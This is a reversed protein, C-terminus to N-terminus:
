ADPAIERLQAHLEPTSAALFHAEELSFEGGDPSTVQGGAERVILVGAAVDWIRTSYSGYVDFRGAALYCLNLTSSGTRRIGQCRPIMALFLRLDPADPSVTPPFGAAALAESLASVGSTHIPRGNLRAGGGEIATFCEDLIPDYVAGVLLRGNRELALSVCYHPVGHVYNTTGDLPDVIWRYESQPAQPTATGAAQASPVNLPVTGNESLRFNPCDGAEEGLLCHDPFATLVTKRVIEQSAFDAQTVLDAPGKKRVVFRGAWDQVVQGGARVAAECVRMYDDLDPMISRIESTFPSFLLAPFDVSADDQAGRLVEPADGFDKGTLL